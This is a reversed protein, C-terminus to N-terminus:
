IGAKNKWYNISEIDSLEFHMPDSRFQEWINRKKWWDWWRRFWCEVFAKVFNAPMDTNQPKYWAPYNEDKISITKKYDNKKSNFDIALGLAHMSMKNLKVNIDMKENASKKRNRWVFSWNCELNNLYTDLTKDNQRRAELKQKVAKLAEALIKNTQIRKWFFDITIIYKAEFKNKNLEVDKFFNKYVRKPSLYKKNTYNNLNNNYFEQNETDVITNIQQTQNQWNIQQSNQSNSQSDSKDNTENDEFNWSILNKYFKKLEELNNQNNPNKLFNKIKDINKVNVFLVKKENSLNWNELWLYIKIFNIVSWFNNKIQKEEEQTLNLQNKVYGIINLKLQRIQEKEINEKLNNLNTQTEFNILDISTQKQVDKSDIQQTQLQEIQKM